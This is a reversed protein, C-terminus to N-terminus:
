APEEDVTQSGTPLTCVFSCTFTTVIKGPQASDSRYIAFGTPKATIATYITYFKHLLAFLINPFSGTTTHAEADSLEPFATEYAGITIATGDSAYGDGFWATPVKSYDAM